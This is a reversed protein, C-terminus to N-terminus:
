RQTEVGDLGAVLERLQQTPEIGLQERLLRRCLRYQRVAEVANGDALHVRVLARHASERLPEGALSLLGTELADGIRGAHLQRECLAELARLRLQRFRERELLVWDEYWDPLLDAAFSAANTLTDDTGALEHRALAEADRLDVRVAPELRLRQGGADILGRARKQIRWLMSRLNAAAREDPTDLWLMGAVYDRQVPRDQLAVFAVLRQAGVPLTVPEGGAVVEFANLLRLQLPAAPAADRKGPRLSSATGGLEPQEKAGQRTSAEQV